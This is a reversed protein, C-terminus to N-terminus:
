LGAAAAERVQTELSDIDFPKDIVARAGRSMAAAALTPDAYATMMVVSSEPTLQKLDELLQFDNSDPLRYDLLVVDFPEKPARALRRASAADAAETVTHGHTALAEGIAWRILREDEVVLVHL